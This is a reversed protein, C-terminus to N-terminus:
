AVNACCDSETEREGYWHHRAIHQLVEDLTGKFGIRERGYFCFVIAATKMNRSVLMHYSGDESLTHEFIDVYVHNKLGQENDFTKLLPVLIRLGRMIKPINQGDPRVMISLIRQGTALLYGSVYMDYRRAWAQFARLSDDSDTQPTWEAMLRTFKDRAM